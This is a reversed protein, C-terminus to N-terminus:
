LIGYEKGVKDAGEQTELRSADISIIRPTDYGIARLRQLLVIENLSDQAQDAANAHVFSMDKISFALNRGVLVVLLDLEKWGPVGKPVGPSIRFFFNRVSGKQIGKRTTRVLREEGQAAQLGNVLGTLPEEREVAFFNTYGGRTQEPPRFKNKPLQGFNPM